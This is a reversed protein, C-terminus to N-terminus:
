KVALVFQRTALQPPILQREREELHNASSKPWDQPLVTQGRVHLLLAKDSQSAPKMLVQPRDVLALLRQYKSSFGQGGAEPKGPLDDLTHVRGGVRDRAELVTVSLGHTELLLATQLGSLGAGLILM